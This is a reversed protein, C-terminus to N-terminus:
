LGVERSQIQRERLKDRLRDLGDGGLETQLLWGIRCTFKPNAPVLPSQDHVRCVRRQLGLFDLQVNEKVLNDHYPILKAHKLLLDICMFFQAVRFLDLHLLVDGAAVARHGCEVHQELLLFILELPAPLLEQRPCLIGFYPYSAKARSDYLSATRFRVAVEAPNEM